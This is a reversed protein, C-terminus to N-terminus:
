QFPGHNGEFRNGVAGKGHNFWDQEWEVHEAGRPGARGFRDGEGQFRPVKQSQCRLDHENLEGSLLDDEDM